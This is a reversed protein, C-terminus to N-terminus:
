PNKPKRYVRLEHRYWLRPIDEAQTLALGFETAWEDVKRIPLYHIWQRALLLDHIRNMAAHLAPHDAMDKYLLTGGPKVKSAARELVSKQRGPPVHHMVDVLSVVDFLGAPWPAAVDLVVFNLDAGLGLSKVERRMRLAVDVASRSSDFGIGTVEILAGALLALFLGAGCGVDLVSARPEVHPLLREFPCIHTRYHVMKRMLYPGEVYLRKALSTLEDVGLERRGTTLSSAGTHASVGTAGNKEIKL